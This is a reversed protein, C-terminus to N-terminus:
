KTKTEDRPLNKIDDVGLNILFNKTTIYHDQILGDVRRKQTSILDRELLNNITQESNVGRIDEIESRIIPQKYAIIALVELNATSLNEGNSEKINLQSYIEGNAVLCLQDESRVLSLGSNKLKYDIEVISNEIEKKSVKCIKQLQGIRLGELNLFLASLVKQSNTNM